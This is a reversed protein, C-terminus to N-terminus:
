DKMSLDLSLEKATKVMFLDLVGQAGGGQGEGAGMVVNPVWRQKGIQEAYLKNVEV